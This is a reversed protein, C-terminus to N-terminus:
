KPLQQPEIEALLWTFGASAAASAVFAADAAIDLEVDEREPAAARLRERWEWRELPPRVLAAERPEWEPPWEEGEDIRRRRRRPRLDVEAVEAALTRLHSARNPRDRRLASQVVSRLVGEDREFEGRRPDSCFISVGHDDYTWCAPTAGAESPAIFVSDAFVARTSQRVWLDEILHFLPAAYRVVANAGVRNELEVLVEQQVSNLRVRFFPVGGGQTRRDRTEAANRRVMREPRKYQVFLSATFSQTGGVHTPVGRPAAVGLQSWVAFHGPVLAIDYGLDQEVVQMPAFFM